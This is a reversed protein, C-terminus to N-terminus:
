RNFSAFTGIPIILLMCVFPAQALFYAVTRWPQIQFAMLLTHALRFVCYFVQCAIQFGRVGNSVFPSTTALASFLMAIIGFPINELDNQTLRLWRDCLEIDDPTPNPNRNWDEKVGKGARRQVKGQIGFTAWVKLMLLPVLISATLLPDELFSM